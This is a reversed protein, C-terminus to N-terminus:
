VGALDVVNSASCHDIIWGPFVDPDQGIQRLGSVNFNNLQGKKWGKCLLQQYEKTSSAYWIQYTYITGFYNAIGSHIETPTSIEYREDSGCLEAQFAAVNLGISQLSAAVKLPITNCARQLDKSINFSGGAETGFLSAELISLVYLKYPSLPTHDRASSQGGNTQNLGALACTISIASASGVLQKLAVPNLQKCLSKWVPGVNMFSGIIQYNLIEALLVKINARITDADKALSCSNSCIADEADPFEFGMETFRGIQEQYNSCISSNPYFPALSAAAQWGYLKEGYQVIEIIPLITV